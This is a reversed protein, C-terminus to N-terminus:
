KYNINSKIINGIGVYKLYAYIDDFNGKPGVIVGYCNEKTVNNFEICLRPIISDTLLVNEYPEFNIIRYENEYEYDSDKFLYSIHTLLTNVLRKFVENKNEVIDNKELVKLIKKLNDKIIEEKEM